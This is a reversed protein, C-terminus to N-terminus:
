GMEFGPVEDTSERYDYPDKKVFLSRRMDTIDMGNEEATCIAFFTCTRECSYHPTKPLAVLPLGGNRVRDSTATIFVADTLIRSLTVKKAARTLTVPHRLFSPAPQKASVTGNKNLARGREDRERTDPLAKRLFNYTIGTIEDNKSLVGARKYAREALVGYSRAQGDIVLHGTRISAATKHEMLRYEGARVRYLMDPKLLYTAIDDVQFELPVEVAVVDITPDTGSYHEQYAAAMEKGLAALEWARDLLHEPAGNSQAMGIHDEALMRFHEALNGSRKTGGPRYWLDLAEHMWTGFELAGFRHAKPVLGM